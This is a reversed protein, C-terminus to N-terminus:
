QELKPLGSMGVDKIQDDKSKKGGVRRRDSKAQASICFFASEEKFTTHIKQVMCQMPVPVTLIASEPSCKLM